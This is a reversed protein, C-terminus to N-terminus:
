TNPYETKSFTDLFYKKKDEFTIGSYNKIIKRIEEFSEQTLM